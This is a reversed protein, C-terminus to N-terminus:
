CLRCAGRCSPFAVGTCRSKLSLIKRIMRSVATPRVLTHKKQAELGLRSSAAWVKYFKANDALLFLSTPSNLFHAIKNTAFKVWLTFKSISFDELWNM